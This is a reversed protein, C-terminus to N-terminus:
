KEKEEIIDYLAPEAEYVALPIKVTMGGQLFRFYKLELGPISILRRGNFSKSAKVQIIEKSVM